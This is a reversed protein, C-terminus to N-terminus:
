QVWMLMALEGAQEALRGAVAAIAFSCSTSRGPDGPAQRVPRRPDRPSARCISAPRKPQEDDLSFPAVAAEIAAAKCGRHLRYM